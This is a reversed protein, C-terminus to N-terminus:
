WPYGAKDPDPMAVPIGRGAIDATGIPRTFQKEAAEELEKDIYDVIALLTAQEEYRDAAEAIAARQICFRRVRM